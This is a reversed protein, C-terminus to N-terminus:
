EYRRKPNATNSTATVTKPAYRKDMKVLHLKPTTRPPNNRRPIKTCRRNQTGVVISLNTKGGPFM